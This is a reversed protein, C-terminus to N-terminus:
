NLRSDSRGPSERVLESNELAEDIATLVEASTVTFGKARLREACSDAATRVARRLDHDHAEVTVAVEVLEITVSYGKTEPEAALRLKLKLTQADGPEVSGTGDTSM